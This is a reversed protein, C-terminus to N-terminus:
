IPSTPQGTRALPPYPVGSTVRLGTVQWKDDHTWTQQILSTHLRGHNILYWEIRVTVLARKSNNQLDVAEVDCSTIQLGNTALQRRAYAEQKDKPVHESMWDVRGWRVGRNYEQLAEMLSEKRMSSMLCGSVMLCLVVGYRLLSKGM